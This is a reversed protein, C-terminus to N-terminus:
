FTKVDIADFEEIRLYFTAEKQCKSPVVLFGKVGDRLRRRRIILDKNMLGLQTLTKPWHLSECTEVEIFVEEVIVDDRYRRGVVDPKYGVTGWPKRLTNLGRRQLWAEAKGVLEEHPDSPM